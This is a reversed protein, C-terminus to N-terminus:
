NEVDMEFSFEPSHVGVVVLGYREYKRVWARLYPLTRRWNICSYTWFDVLVAKGRLDEQKLPASNLWGSAGRLSPMDSEVPLDANPSQFWKGPFSTMAAMAAARLFHRRSSKVESPM